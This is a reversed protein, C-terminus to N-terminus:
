EDKKKTNLKFIEKLNIDNLSKLRNNLIEKIKKNKDKTNM